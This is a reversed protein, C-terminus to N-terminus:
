PIENSKEEVAVHSTETRRTDEECGIHEVTPLRAYGLDPEGM